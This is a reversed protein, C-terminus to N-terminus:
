RASRSSIAASNAGPSRIAPSFFPMRSCIFSAAARTAPFRSRSCGIASKSRNSVRILDTAYPAASQDDEHIWVRANFHAAYRDADAVDDRHSLLIDALGGLVEIRHV